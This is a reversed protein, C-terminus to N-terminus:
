KLMTELNIQTSVHITYLIGNIVTGDITVQRKMDTNNRSKDTKIYTDTFYEMSSQVTIKCEGTSSSNPYKWNKRHCDQQPRKKSRNNCLLLLKELIYVLFHFQQTTLNYAKETM